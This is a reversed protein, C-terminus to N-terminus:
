VATEGTWDDGVSLESRLDEVSGKGDEASSKKGLESLFSFWRYVIEVVM